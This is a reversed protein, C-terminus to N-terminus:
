GRSEREIRKGYRKLEKKYRKEVSDIMEGVDRMYHAMVNKGDDSGVPIYTRCDACGTGDVFKECVEDMLSWVCDSLM